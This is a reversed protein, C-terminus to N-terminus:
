PAALPDLIQRGGSGLFTAAQDHIGPAGAFTHMGHPDDDEPFDFAAPDLTWVADHPEGDDLAAETVDARLAAGWAYSAGNALLGDGLNVQLLVPPAVQAHRHAYALPDAPELISEVTGACFPLASDYAPDDVYLGLAPKMLFSVSGRLRGQQFLDQFSAGPANMVVAEIRDEVGLLLGGIITGMSHGFYSVTGDLDPGTAGDVDVAGGHVVSILQMLDLASQRMHDRFIRPSDLRILGTASGREGHSAADMALVARGREVFARGVKAAFTRDDNFGHQAIVTPWPPPFVTADPLVLVLELDVRPAAAVDDVLAADWLGVGADDENGPVRLDLSAFSGEAVRAGDPLRAAQAALDGTLQDVPLAPGFAVTPVAQDLVRARM